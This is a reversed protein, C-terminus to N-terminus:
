NVKKPGQMAARIKIAIFVLVAVAGAIAGCVAAIV